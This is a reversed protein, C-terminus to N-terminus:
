RNKRRIRTNKKKKRVSFGFCGLKRGLAFYEGHAYATLGANELCLRGNEDILEESVDLSVIETLFMDHTGLPIIQRVECEINIPSQAIIPADIKSAETKVLKTKEFKDEKRGSRVGCYDCAKTLEETTLNIVFVGSNKILEYSYREPRISIYTMPPHTNVTGTWAVTFVNDTGDYRSTVMVPPVPSTMVSPKWVQKKYKDETM